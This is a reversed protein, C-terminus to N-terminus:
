QAWWGRFFHQLPRSGALAPRADAPASGVLPAIEVPAAGIRDSLRHLTELFAVRREPPILEVRPRTVGDRTVVMNEPLYSAIVHSITQGSVGARRKARIAMRLTAANVVREIVNTMLNGETM